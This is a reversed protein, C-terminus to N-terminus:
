RVLSVSSRRTHKNINIRQKNLYNKRAQDVYFSAPKSNSMSFETVVIKKRDKESQKRKLSAKKLDAELQRNRQRINLHKKKPIKVNQSTNLNELIENPVFAM